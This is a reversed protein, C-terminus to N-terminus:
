LSDSYKVQEAKEITDAFDKKRYFLMNIKQEMRFEITRSAFFASVSKNIGKHFGDLTDQDIGEFDPYKNKLSSVVNESVNLIMLEVFKKKSFVFRAVVKDGAFNFDNCFYIEIGPYPYALNPLESISCKSKKKIQELSMNFKLEKYGDLPKAHAETIHFFNYLIAAVFFLVKM